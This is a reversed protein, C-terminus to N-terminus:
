NDFLLWHWMGNTCFNVFNNSLIDLFISKFTSDTLAEVYTAGHPILSDDSLTGPCM